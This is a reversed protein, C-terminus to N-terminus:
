DKKGSGLFFGLLALGILPLWVGVAAKPDKFANSLDATQPGSMQPLHRRSRAILMAVGALVLGGLGVLLAATLPGLAEALAIGAALALGLVGITLFVFALAWLALTVGLRRLTQATLVRALTLALSLGGM